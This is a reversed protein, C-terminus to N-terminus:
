PDLREFRLRTRLREEGYAQLRRLERHERSQQMLEDTTKQGIFKPLVEAAPRASAMEEPTIEPNDEDLLEPDPRRIRLGAVSAIAAFLARRTM